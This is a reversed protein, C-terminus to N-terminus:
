KRFMTIKAGAVANIGHRLQGSLLASKFYLCVMNIGDGIITGTPSAPSNSTYTTTLTIIQAPSITSGLTASQGQLVLSCNLIPQDPTYVIVTSSTNIEFGKPIVKTLIIGGPGDTVLGIWGNTTIPASAAGSFQSCATVTLNDPSFDSPGFILEVSNGLYGDEWNPNGTLASIRKIGIVNSTTGAVVETNSIELRELGNTSFNVSNIASQYMGTKQDGIFSLTPVTPNNNSRIIIQNTAPDAAAVPTAGM